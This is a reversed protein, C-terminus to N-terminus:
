EEQETIEGVPDRGAPGDVDFGGVAARLVVVVQAGFAAVRGAGGGVQVPQREIEPDLAHVAFLQPLQDPGLVAGAHAMVAAAGDM